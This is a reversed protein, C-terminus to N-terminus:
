WCKVIGSLCTSWPFWGERKWLAHALKVNTRGDLLEAKTGHLCALQFFGFSGICVKHNDKWNVIKEGGRSEEIAVAYAIQVSWDYKSIEALLDINNSVPKIVEKIPPPSPIEVPSEIPIITQLTASKYATITNPLFLWLLAM